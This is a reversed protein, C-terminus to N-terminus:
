EEDGKDDDMLAYFAKLVYDLDTKKSRDIRPDSRKIADIYSDIIMKDPVYRLSEDQVAHIVDLKLMAKHDGNWRHLLYDLDDKEDDSLAKITAILAVDRDSVVESHPYLEYSSCGLAHCIYPMFGIRPEAVGREWSSIMSLSVPEGILETLKDAFEQQSMRRKKRIAAINQCIEYSIRIM